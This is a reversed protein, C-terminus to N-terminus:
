PSLVAMPLITEPSSAARREPIFASFETAPEARLTMLDIVDKRGSM